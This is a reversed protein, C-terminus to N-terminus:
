RVHWLVCIVGLFLFKSESAWKAEFVSMTISHFFRSFDALMGIQKELCDKYMLAAALVIIFFNSKADFGPGLQEAQKVTVSHNLESEQKHNIVGFSSIM